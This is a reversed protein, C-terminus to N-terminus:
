KRIVIVAIGGFARLFPLWKFLKADVQELFSPKKSDPDRIFRDLRAFLLFRHARFGSGFRKIIHLDAESLKREDETIHHELSATRPVLWRGFATERLADFVPARIPEHFVALGGKKLVRLSECIARKIDVHHLIDTGIVLDFYGTPYALDEAASVSFHTKGELGYKRALREAIAINNPSLDFGFVEYGIKSFIVSSEGVGCGFDLLRQDESRFHTKAIEFLRWYSNWPRTENGLISDFCVDISANRESFEEYFELERIQRQTLTPIKEFKRNAALQVSL